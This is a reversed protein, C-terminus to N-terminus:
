AYMQNAKGYTDRPQKQNNALFAKSYIMRNLLKQFYAKEEPTKATDVAAKLNKYYGVLRSHEPILVRLEPHEIFLQMMDDIQQKGKEGPEIFDPLASFRKKVDDSLQAYNPNNLDTKMDQKLAYRGANMAMLAQNMENEDMAYQQIAHDKIWGLQRNDPTFPYFKRPRMLTPMNSSSVASNPNYPRGSVTWTPNSRNVDILGVSNRHRLEHFFTDSLRGLWSSSNSFPALGSSEYSMYNQKGQNAQNWIKGFEAEMAEHPMDVKGTLPNYKPGSISAMQPVDKKWAKIEDPSSLRLNARNWYDEPVQQYHSLLRDLYEPANTEIRYLQENNYPQRTFALRALDPRSSPNADSQQKWSPGLLMRSAKYSPLRTPDVTMSRVTNSGPVQFRWNVQYNGETPAGYTVSYRDAGVDTHGPQRSNLTGTRSAAVLAPNAGGMAQNIKAANEVAQGTNSQNPQPLAARKLMSQRIIDINM